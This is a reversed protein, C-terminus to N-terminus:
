SWCTDKATATRPFPGAHDMAIVEFPAAEIDRIQLEPRFVKGKVLSCEICSKVRAKIYDDVKPWFVVRTLLDHTRKADHHIAFPTQHFLDCIVSRIEEPVWKLGKEDIIIGNVLKLKYKEIFKIAEVRDPFDDSVDKNLLRAIPALDRCRLTAQSWEQQTPMAVGPDDDL